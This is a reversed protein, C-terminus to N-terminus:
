QGAGIRSPGPRAVRGPGTRYLAVGDPCPMSDAAVLDVLTGSARTRHWIITRYRSRLWPKVHEYTIASAPRGYLRAANLRLVERHAADAVGVVHM